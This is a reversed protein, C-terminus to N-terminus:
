SRFNSPMPMALGIQRSPPPPFYFISGSKPRRLKEKKKGIKGKKKGIKGREHIKVQNKGWKKRKGSKIKEERNKAIKKESDFLASQEMAKSEGM